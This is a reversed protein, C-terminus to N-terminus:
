RLPRMWPKALPIALNTRGTSEDYYRMAPQTRRIVSPSGYYGTAGPRSAATGPNPYYGPSYYYGGVTGGPSYYYGTPVARAPGGVTQARVSIAAIGLVGVITLAAVAATAKWNSQM